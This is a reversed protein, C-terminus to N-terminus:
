ASPERVRPYEVARASGGAGEARGESDRRWSLRRSGDGSKLISPSTGCSDLVLITPLRRLQWGSRKLPVCCLVETM